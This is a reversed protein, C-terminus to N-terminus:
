VKGNRLATFSDAERQKDDKWGCSPLIQKQMLALFGIGSVKLAADLLMSILSPEIVRCRKESASRQMVKMNIAPQVELDDGVLALKM